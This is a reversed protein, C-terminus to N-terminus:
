RTDESVRKLVLVSLLSYLIVFLLLMGWCLLLSSAEPEYMDILDLEHEGVEKGIAASKDCAARLKAAIDSSAGLARIAWHGVMFCATFEFFDNMPFLVGSFVVQAILFVPAIINAVDASKVLSSIFLGTADSSLNLLFVSIYVELLIPFILGNQSKSFDAFLAFVLIVLLTQAACIVAQLILKSFIYAGLSLNACYERKIISREKCIEQISNSVGTFIVSCCLVFYGTQSDHFTTFMSDGAVLAVVLGCVIPLAAMLTLKGTSNLLIEANRAILVRTQRFSVPLRHNM